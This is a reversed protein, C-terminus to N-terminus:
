IFYEAHADKIRNMEITLYIIDNRSKLKKYEEDRNDILAQLLLKAQRIEKEYERVRVEFPRLTKSKM